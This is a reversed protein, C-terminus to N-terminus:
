LDNGIISLARKKSFYKKTYQCAKQSRHELIEANNYVNILIAAFDDKHDAIFLIEDPEAFGEAGVSTTVVPMGYYLAEAIKGKIGAGYRLPAVNVRCANYYGILETDSIYGTVHIKQSAQNKVKVPPNSGIVVLHCDPFIESFGPWIENIFWLIGDVNPPHMFGGVFMINQRTSFHYERVPFEEYIYPVIARAPKTIAFDKKICEIEIESPYYIIDAREFIQSEIKKTAEAKKKLKKNNKLGSERQERLYHLDHGYYFIKANSNLKANDLYKHAIHPRSLFIYALGQGNLRIWDDWNFKKSNVSYLVEVGSQQFGNTYPQHPFLNDGLLKVRLDLSLYLDIYAKMTRSGADQDYHPVFHDIVLLYKGPRGRERAFFLNLDNRGFHFKSLTNSWKVTFSDNRGNDEVHGSKVNHQIVLLSLPQYIVKKDILRIYMSIDHLLYPWQDTSPEAWRSWDLFDTIQILAFHDGSDVEKLYEFEPLLPDQGHGYGSTTGDSWIITGANNLTLDKLVTKPIVMGVKEKFSFTDLCIQLTDKQFYSSTDLLAVHKLSHIDSLLAFLDTLRCFEFAGSLLNFDDRIFQDSKLIILKYPIASYHIISGVCSYLSIIDQTLAIVFVVEPNKFEPVFIKKSSDPIVPSPFNMKGSLPNIYNVNDSLNRDASILSEEKLTKIFILFNGYSIKRIMRSPHFVIRLVMKVTFWRRTGYPFIFYFLKVLFAHPWRLPMTIKWSTSNYIAQMSNQLGSLIQEKDMIEKEKGVLSQQLELIKGQLQQLEINLHCYEEPFYKEILSDRESFFVTDNQKGSVGETSFNSIVIDVYKHKVNNDNFWKFNFAYDALVRYRTDFNGIESFLRKRYFIAQHCINKNMLKLPSFRHDYIKGSHGWEVNGYVVDFQELDKSSFIEELIGNNCFVDDSGMFYLWEGSSMSIGKNM